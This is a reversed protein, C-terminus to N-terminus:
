RRRARRQHTREAVPKVSRHIDPTARTSEFEALSASAAAFADRLVSVVRDFDGTSPISRDGHTQGESPTLSKTVSKRAPQKDIQLEELLEGALDKEVRLLFDSLRSFGFTSAIQTVTDLPIDYTTQRLFRSITPQKVGWEKAIDQQRKGEM